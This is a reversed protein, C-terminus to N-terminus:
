QDKPLIAGLETPHEKVHSAFHPEAEMELHTSGVNRGQNLDSAQDAHRRGSMYQKFRGAGTTPMGAVPTGSNTTHELYLMDPAESGPQPAGHHLVLPAHRDDQANASPGPSRHREAGKLIKRKELVEKDHNRQEIPVQINTQSM